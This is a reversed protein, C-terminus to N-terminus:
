RRSISLAIAAHQTQQLHQGPTSRQRLHYSTKVGGVRPALRGFFKPAADAFVGASAPLGVAPVGALRDHVQAADLPPSM